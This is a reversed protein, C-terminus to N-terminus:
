RGNRENHHVVRKAVAWRRFAVVTAKSDSHLRYWCCLNKCCCVKSQWSKYRFEKQTIFMVPRGSRDKEPLVQFSGTRLEEMDDDDFDDLTIKKVLKDEGFLEAKHEYYNVMRKAAKTVDFGDARLFKRRFGVDRVYRPSLFVAREYASKQKIKRIEGDLEELLRDMNSPDKNHVDDVVGHIEEFVREREQLSLDHLEKALIADTEDDARESYIQFDNDGCALGCSEM